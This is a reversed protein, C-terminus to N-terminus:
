ITCIVHAEYMFTINTYYVAIFIIYGTEKELFAM